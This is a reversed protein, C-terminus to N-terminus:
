RQCHMGKRNLDKFDAFSIRPCKKIIRAAYPFTSSMFLIVLLTKKWEYERDRVEQYIAIFYFIPPPLKSEPYFFVLPSSQGSNVQALRIVKVYFPCCFPRLNGCSRTQHASVSVRQWVNGMSWVCRFVCVAVMYKGHKM